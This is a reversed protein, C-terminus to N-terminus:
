FRDLQAGSFWLGYFWLFGPNPYVIRKLNLFGWDLRLAVEKGRM